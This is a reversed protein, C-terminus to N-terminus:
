LPDDHQHRDSSGVPEPPMQIPPSSLGPSPKVAEQSEWGRRQIQQRVPLRPIRTSARQSVLINYLHALCPRDQVEQGKVSFPVELASYLANISIIATEIQMEM